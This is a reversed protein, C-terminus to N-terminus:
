RDAAKAEREQEVRAGAEAQEAQLQELADTMQAVWGGLETTLIKEGRTVLTELDPRRAGGTRFERRLADLRAAARNYAILTNDVQLYGLHALAAGAIATTLGIWIELGIAALLTGAGGAVLTGVQLRTRLVDMSAVKGRYYSLQDAIRIRVYAEADLRGLGDDTAEAGYMVPPLPGDYPTLPGGSAPSRIVGDEIEALRGTLRRPRDTSEACARMADASYVGTRTRYRLIESKVAEAAARLLVWRKGAGRRNALAILVSVAIPTAIVLARMARPASDGIADYALALATALIGLGLIAVQTREFAKRLGVALADYTAFLGWAEKLAVEDRPGTEDRLHAALAPGLAAGSGIVRVDGGDLTRRLEDDDPQRGAAAAIEDALGGTDQIVFVPWHRAVAERVEGLAGKGGAALVMAVPEGHALEAALAALLATEGGWEDSDALAVHTHHPDLPTGDSGAHAVEGAPAVGILVPLSDPDAARAAGTLTMVGAATGGDVVVAGSAAVAERLAPGLAARAVSLQPERLDDAGGSVVIVPRPVGPDLGLRDLISRPHEGPREAVVPRPAPAAREPEQPPRTGDGPAAATM